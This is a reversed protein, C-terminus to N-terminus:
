ALSINLLLAQTEWGQILPWGIFKCVAVALEARLSEQRTNDGKSMQWGLTFFAFCYLIGAMHQILVTRFNGNSACAYHDTIAPVLTFM